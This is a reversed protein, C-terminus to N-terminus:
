SALPIGDIRADWGDAAAVDEAVEGAGDDVVDGALQQKEQEERTQGEWMSLASIGEPM